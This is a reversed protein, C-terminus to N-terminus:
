LAGGVWVCGRGASVRATVTLATVPLRAADAPHVDCHTPPRGWRATFAATAAALAGALTPTAADCQWVLYTIM